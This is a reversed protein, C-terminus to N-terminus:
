DHSTGEYRAARALRLKVSKVALGLSLWDEQELDFGTLGEIRALRQRLTNPHTHLVRAVGVVNGRGELYAELTHLLESGRREDYSVVCDLQTRHRDPLEGASDLIYRYPGLDGYTYLGSAGHVLTGVEAAAAADAFARPYSDRERCADSLGVAVLESNGGTVRAYVKRVTEVLEAEGGPPLPLVARCFAARGDFLTGPLARALSTELGAAVDSWTLSESDVSSMARPGREGLGTAAGARGGRAAHLVVHPGRLDFGLGAAQTALEPTRGQPRSLGDVFDKVLNEERLKGILEHHKLAVATHSAIASLLNIADPSATPCLVALIGAREVGAVLPVIMPVGEVGGAWVVEALARVDAPRSHRSDVTLADVHLGGTDLVPWDSQEPSAARLALRHDAGILYVEAREADLAKRCGATVTSLLESVSGALAIEHSLQSLETLLTVRRLAHEYLRANEVAGAVLAATHDLFDLDTRAFERPAVTHLNIVGIVDGARSFVPVSVMSQFREEELERIHIFRPDALANDRIFAARRTSVVWGTLGEDVAFSIAGELHAYMTSAARLVLRADEVFYVFCGHCDTAETVLRVIGRLVTDLDPGSGITRIIEYLYAKEDPIQPTATHAQPLRTKGRPDRRRGPTRSTTASVGELHGSRV